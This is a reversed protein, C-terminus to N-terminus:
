GVVGRFPAPITHAAKGINSSTPERTPPPKATFSTPTPCRRCRCSDAPLLLRRRQPLQLCGAAVASRSPKSSPDPSPSAFASARCPILITTPIPSYIALVTRTPRDGFLHRHPQAMLMKSDSASRADLRKKGRSVRSGSICSAFWASISVMRENTPAFRLSGSGVPIDLMDTM